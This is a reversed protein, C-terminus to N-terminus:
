SWSVPLCWFSSAFVCSLFVIYCLVACASWTFVILCILILCPSFLLAHGSSVPLHSLLLVHCVCVSVSGHAWVCFLCLFMSCPCSLCSQWPQIRVTGEGWCFGGPMWVPCLLWLPYWISPLSQTGLCGKFMPPPVTSSSVGPFYNTTSWTPALKTFEYPLPLLSPPIPVKNTTRRSVNSAQKLPPTKLIAKTTEPALEQSTFVRPVFEPGM